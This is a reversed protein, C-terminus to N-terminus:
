VNPTAPATQGAGQAAMYEDVMQKVKALGAEGTGGSKLDAEVAQAASNTFGAPLQGADELEKVQSLLNDIVQQMQDQEDITPTTDAEQPPEEMPVQEAPAGAEGGAGGPMPGTQMM